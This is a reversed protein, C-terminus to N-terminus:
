TMIDKPMCDPARSRWQLAGRRLKENSPLPFESYRTRFERNYLKLGCIGCIKRSSDNSFVPVLTSSKVLLDQPYDWHCELCRM